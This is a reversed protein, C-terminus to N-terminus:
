NISMHSESSVRPCTCKQMLRQGQSAIETSNHSYGYVNCTCFDLDFIMLREFLSFMYPCVSLVVSLMVKKTLGGHIVHDVSLRFKSNLISLEGNSSHTVCPCAPSVAPCKAHRAYHNVANTTHQTAPLLSMEAKGWCLQYYEIPRIAVESPHL